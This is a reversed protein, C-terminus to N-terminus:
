VPEAEPAQKDLLRQWLLTEQWDSTDSAIFLNDM